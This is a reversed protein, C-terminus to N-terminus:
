KAFTKPFSWNQRGYSLGRSGETRAQGIGKRFRRLHVGADPRSTYPKAPQSMMRGLLGDLIAPTFKEMIWEPVVPYGDLDEPDAVTLAVIATYQEPSAPTRGIRVTQNDELIAPVTRGYSDVVAMLRTIAGAVPTLSYSYDQPNLVPISTAPQATFEIREIWLNTEYLFEKLTLFLETVIARDIAGPLRVRANDIIRNVSASPM